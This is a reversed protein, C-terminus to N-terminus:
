FIRWSTRQMSSSCHQSFLSCVKASKEEGDGIKLDYLGTSVAVVSTTGGDDDPHAREWAELEAKHRATLAEELLEVENQLCQFAHEM